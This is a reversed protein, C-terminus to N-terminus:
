APGPLPYTEGARWERQEAIWGNRQLWDIISRVTVVPYHGSLRTAVSHDTFAANAAFLAGALRKSYPIDIRDPRFGTAKAYAQARERDVSLDADAHAALSGAALVELLWATSNQYGSSGPRAIVSYRPQHLRQLRTQDLRQRLREALEPQLWVIRADQNVLDDAFYNFLGEAYLSSRDSACQNLLHLVSWRGDPHDRLVLGIHSYHLGYQGLDSGVRALLALPADAQDLAAAVQLTREAAAALEQPSVQRQECSSGARATLALLSLLGVLLGAALRSM